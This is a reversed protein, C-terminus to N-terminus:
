KKAPQPFLVTSTDFGMIRARTLLKQIIERPLEPTRSLIWLYKQKKGGILAYQYDPDIELINYPTYFIWFFSVLLAGPHQPDDPASLKARGEIMSLPGEPSGKHGSNVVRIKGDKRLTYEATVAHLNREFRNDLRAIEYWKGLFRNLDFYKITDNKMEDPM